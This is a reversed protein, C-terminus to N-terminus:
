WSRDREARSRIEDAAEIQDVVAGFANDGGVLGVRARHQEADGRPRRRGADRGLRDSGVGMADVGKCQHERTLDAPEIEGAREAPQGALAAVVQQPDFPDYAKGVPGLMRGDHLRCLVRQEGRFPEVIPGILILSTTEDKDHVFNRSGLDEVGKGEGVGGM